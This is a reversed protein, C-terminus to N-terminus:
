KGAVPLLGIRFERDLNECSNVAIIMVIIVVTPSMRVRSRTQVGLFLLFVGNVCLLTHKTYYRLLKISNPQCICAHVICKLSLHLLIPPPPHTDRLLPSM